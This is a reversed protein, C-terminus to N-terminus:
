QPTAFQHAVGLFEARPHQLDTEGVPIGEPCYEGTSEMAVHTIGHALLWDSLVLLDATMTGFTRTEKALGRKSKPVIIAALVSKKHVDLGACRTYVVDM